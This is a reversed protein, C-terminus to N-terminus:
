GKGKTQTIKKCVILVILILTVFGFLTLISIVVYGGTSKFFTEKKKSEETEGGFYKEELEKIKTIQYMKLANKEKTYEKELDKILGESINKIRKEEEKSLLFTKKYNEVFKDSSNRIWYFNKGVIDDTFRNQLGLFPFTIQEEIRQKIESKVKFDNFDLKKGKIFNGDFESQKKDVFKKAAVFPEIIFKNKLLTFHKRVMKELNLGKGIKDYLKICRQVHDVAEKYKKIIEDAENTYFKDDKKDTTQIYKKYDEYDKIGCTFMKLKDVYDDKCTGCCVVHTQDVFDCIAWEIPEKKYDYKVISFILNFLLFLM